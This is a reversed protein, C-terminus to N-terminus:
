FSNTGLTCIFNTSPSSLSKMRNSSTPSAAHFPIIGLVGMEGEWLYNKALKMILHHRNGSLLGDVATHCPAWRVKRCQRRLRLPIDPTQLVDVANGLGNEGNKGCGM